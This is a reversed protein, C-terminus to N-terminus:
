EATDQVWSPYIVLLELMLPLEASLGTSAGVSLLPRTLWVMM